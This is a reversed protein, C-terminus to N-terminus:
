LTKGLVQTNSTANSDIFNRSGCELYKVFCPKGWLYLLLMQPQHRSDPPCLSFFTFSPPTQQLPAFSYVYAFFAPALHAFLPGSLGLWQNLIGYTVWLNKDCHSHNWFLDWVLHTYMFSNPYCRHSYKQMKTCMLLCVRAPINTHVQAQLSPPSYNRLGSIAHNSAM